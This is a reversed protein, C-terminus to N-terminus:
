LFRGLNVCWIGGEPTVGLWGYQNSYFWKGDGAAWVYGFRDSVVWSDPISAGNYQGVFIPGISTTDASYPDSASPTLWLFQMSWLARSNPDTVALWGQLSTSWIWQGGPHFWLWGYASGGYWGTGTDWLSGFTVHPIWGPGAQTVTFLQGGVALSGSRTSPGPNGDVLYTVTGSGTGSSTTHLWVQNPIATWGCVSGNTVAFSGTGGSAGFAAGPESLVSVCAVVQCVTSTARGYVNTVVLAYDGAEGASVQSLQLVPANAGRLNASEAVPVGNKRWQYSLAPSGSASVGFATAGGVGIAVSAPPQTRVVPTGTGNGIFVASLMANAGALRTVKAQVPGNVAWVLYVGNSAGPVTQSDLVSGTAPNILDVRESRGEALVLYLALTNTIGSPLKLNVTFNTASFYCGLFRNTPSTNGVRELASAAPTSANLTFYSGGGFEVATGSPLNTAQGLLVYGNTGSGYTGKWNGRTSSDAMLFRVKNTENELAVTLTDTGSYGWADHVTVTLINTGLLLALGPVSWNTTGTATGSGGRNNSWTVELLAASGAVGTGALNLVGTSSVYNSATSPSTITIVPSIAGAQTVTFVQNGVTITGSRPTLSPNPDVTYAVSGSGGGASSTHLWVSNTVAAWSCGTAVAFSGSGGLASPVASTPSLGYSCTLNVILSASGTNGAADRATVTIINTGLQV